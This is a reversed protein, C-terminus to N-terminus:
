SVSGSFLGGPEIMFCFHTELFEKDVEILNERPKIIPFNYGTSQWGAVRTSHSAKRELMRARLSDFSGTNRFYIRTGVPRTRQNVRRGARGRKKAM